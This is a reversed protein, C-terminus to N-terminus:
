AWWGYTRGALWVALALIGLKVVIYFLWHRPMPTDPRWDKM